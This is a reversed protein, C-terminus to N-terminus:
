GSSGRIWRRAAAKAALLWRGQADHGSVDMGLEERAIGWAGCYLQEMAILEDLLSAGTEGEPTLRRRALLVGEGLLDVLRGRVFRYSEARRRYHEALPESSLHPSIVLPCGGGLPVEIQKVHSERTMGLLSRFLNRLDARYDDGLRFRAAEPTLDPVILPELAHLVHDYWGSQETPALNSRGDEVRAIM